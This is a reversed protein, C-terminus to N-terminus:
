WVMYSHDRSYDAPGIERSDNSDFRARIDNHRDRAPQGAVLHEVQGAQNKGAAFILFELV